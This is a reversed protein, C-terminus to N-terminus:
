HISIICSDFGLLKSNSIVLLYSIDSILDVQELLHTFLEFGIPIPLGWLLENL